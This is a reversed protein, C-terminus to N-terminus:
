SGPEPSPPVATALPIRVTLRCGHDPRSEVSWSGALLKVREAISAWGLGRQTSAPDCGRGDDQLAVHLHRGERKLTLAASRAGAHRVINNLGEQVIRYVHLDAERGLGPDGTDVRCDIPIGSAAAIRETLTTVAQQLGLRDLQHPHLDYAITRVEAVSRRTLEAIEDLLTEPPHGPTVAGMRATNGILLLHQGLSDHLEGAIRRREADQVEILRRAVAEQERQEEKLATMRRRYLWLFGLALCLATALHFGTRGWLPPIIRIALAAPVPTWVGAANAGRVELRYDGPALRSFSITSRTGLPIWASDLGALRYAYRNRAPERYDFLSVSLDILAAGHDLVVEAAEGPPRRLPHGDGIPVPRGLVQMATFAIRPPRTDRVIGDTEIRALGRTSGFFVTGDGAAHGAFTDFYLPEGDATVPIGEVAGSNPDFRFLGQSTAVWLRGRGDDLASFVVQGGLGEAAGLRQVTGSRAGIRNLGGGETGVWVAGTDSASEAVCTIANAGLTAPDGPQHRWHRLTGAAPNWCALGRTFTGIWLWGRRDRHLATIQGDHVPSDAPWADPLPLVSRGDATMRRLGVQTGLWIGGNVPDRLLLYVVDLMPDGGTIDSPRIRRFDGTAPRFHLLGGGFTGLWLGDGGDPAIALVTRPSIAPAAAPPLWNEFRGTAPTFRSLGETTAIWFREKTAPYVAWVHDHLLSSSREPDQRFVRVPASAPAFVAVGGDSAAWVQGHHDVLLALVHNGPLGDDRSWQRLANTRPNWCFLGATFTGIWIRGDPSEALARVQTGSPIPIPKDMRGDPLRRVPGNATGIWLGSRTALLPGLGDGSKFTPESPSSVFRKMAPQWRQLRRQTNIWFGGSDGVVPAIARVADDSLDGPSDGNRWHIIRGTNLDIRNVGGGSTGVWLANSDGTTDALLARIGDHSLTASDGPQHRWADFRERDTDFAFLGGIRTGAWIRTTGALPAEALATVAPSGLSDPHFSGARFHRLRHGDFRYLGNEAGIWVFGRSDQLLANAHTAAIADPLRIPAPGWEGAPQGVVPLTILLLVTRLPLRFGSLPPM